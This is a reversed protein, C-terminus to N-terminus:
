EKVERDANGVNHEIVTHGAASEAPTTEAPLLQEIAAVLASTDEPGPVRLYSDVQQGGLAWRVMVLGGNEVVRDITVNARQVDGLDTAPIFADPEGAIALVIGRAAVTVYARARFGLGAVAIRNLPEGVVTTSVYFLDLTIIEEGIDSPVARPRPLNAQRRKRARWGLLMGVLVIVIVAATIITPTVKDVSPGGHLLLLPRSLLPM